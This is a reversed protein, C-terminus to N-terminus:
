KPPTHSKGEDPDDISESQRNDADFATFNLFHVSRARCDYEAVTRVWKFGAQSDPERLVMMESAVILSGKPKISDLDVYTHVEGMEFVRYWHQAMAPLPALTAALAAAATLLRM